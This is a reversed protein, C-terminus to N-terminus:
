VDSTTADLVQWEWRLVGELAPLAPFRFVTRFRRTQEPPIAVRAIGKEDSIVLCETLESEAEPCDFLRVEVDFDRLNYATSLNQVRGSLVTYGGEETLTVNMLNVDEATIKNAQQEVLGGGLIFYTSVAGGFVVLVIVAVARLQPYLFAVTISGVIILFLAAIPM